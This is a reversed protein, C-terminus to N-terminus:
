SPAKAPPRSAGSHWFAFSRPEPPMHRALHAGMEGGGSLEGRTLRNDSGMPYNDAYHTVLKCLVTEIELVHPRRELRPPALRDGLQGAVWAIAVELKDEIGEEVAILSAGIGPKPDFRLDCDVMDIPIGLVSSMGDAIKTRFYPGFQPWEAVKKAVGMYTPAVLSDVASEATKYRSSLYEIATFSKEGFFGRREFTRPWGERDARRLAKWFGADGAEAVRCATGPHNFCWYALFWRCTMARDWGSRHLAVHIPELDLTDFLARAFDGPRMYEYTLPM